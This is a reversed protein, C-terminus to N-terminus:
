CVCSPSYRDLCGGQRRAVAVMRLPMKYVYISTCQCVNQIMLGATRLRVIESTTSCNGTTMMPPPTHPKSAASRQKLAPMLNRRNSLPSSYPPLQCALAFVYLWRCALCRFRPNCARHLPDPRQQFLFAAGKLATDTLTSRKTDVVPAHLATDIPCPRERLCFDM